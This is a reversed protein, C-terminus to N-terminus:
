VHARGIQGYNKVLYWFSLTCFKGGAARPANAITQTINLSSTAGSTLTTGAATAVYLARSGPPLVTLVPTTKALGRAEGPAGTSILVGNHVGGADGTMTAFNGSATWGAVLNANSLSSVEGAGPTGAVLIYLPQSGAAEGQFDGNIAINRM